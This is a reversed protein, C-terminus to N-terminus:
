SLHTKRLSWLVTVGTLSSGPGKPRSDLVRGSLWQAGMLFNLFLKSGPWAVITTKGPVMYVNLFVWPLPPWFQYSKRMALKKWLFINCASIWLPPSPGPGGPFCLNYIPNLLSYAIPGGGGSFTPGEGRSFINSGRQFRPFHYNEKFYVMPMRYFLHLVVLFSSFFCHWPNKHCISRSGGGEM